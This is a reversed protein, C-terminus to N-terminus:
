RGVPVLEIDRDAVRWTTARAELAHILLPLM